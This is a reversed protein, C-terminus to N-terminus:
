LQVTLLLQNGKKVASIGSTLLKGQSQTPIVKHSRYVRNTRYNTKRSLARTTFDGGFFSGIKVIQSTTPKVRESEWHGVQPPSVGVGAAVDKQTLGRATRSDRLLTSFRNTLNEIRWTAHFSHLLQVVGGDGM